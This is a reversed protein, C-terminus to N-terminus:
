HVHQPGPALGVAEVDSGILVVFGQRRSVGDETYDFVYSRRLVLRGAADRAPRMNSFAVTGDLFQVALRRCTEIAIANAAERAQLAAYWQWAALMALLLLFLTWTM